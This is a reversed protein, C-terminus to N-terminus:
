VVKLDNEPKRDAIGSRTGAFSACFALTDSKAPRPRPPVPVFAGPENVDDAVIRAALERSAAAIGARCFVDGRFQLATALLRVFDRCLDPDPPKPASWFTGLPQGDTLGEVDYLAVGLTKVPRGARVAQFGVTSNVTVVGDCAEILAELSGGDIFRVRGVLGRSAAKRAVIRRWNKLGNDLPHLKFVLDADRPASAAFDDLVLGMAAELSTFPSHVRIQFDTELQLPFLFFRKKGSTLVRETEAAAAARRRTRRLRWLWGAYEALPHYIAHWRYHPYLFWLFVNPLNYLLDYGAEGAFSHQYLQRFDPDPLGSAAARIVAPDDPFHSNCGSGGHEVTLWDPRFYGMEVAYVSLGRTKAAAVVPRHWLREEGLLIVDTVGNRDIFRAVFDQWREPRGRYNTSGPRRWYIWDGVNLNIRLCRHGAAELRDATRAFLPSAHGQLFLFTRTSVAAASRLVSSPDLGAEAGLGSMSDPSSPDTTMRSPAGPCSRAAASRASRHGALGLGSGIDPGLAAKRARSPHDAVLAAAQGLPVVVYDTRHDPFPDAFSKLMPVHDGYFLLWVPRDLQDLEGALHGLARDSRELIGLYIDLADKAEGFRGPLWPGHNEMSAAFIFQGKENDRDDCVSLVRDALKHDTVYRGDISHDHDFADLMTMTQFGLHPMARHRAFFKRDYPHLFHTSWGHRRFWNPWAVEAYDKARLYPYPADAGIQDPSLGSLVSFETRLTYGGEFVSQLRGWEIARDRLKDLHPLDLSSVGFHRMDVFSESQWVVCLPPGSEEGSKQDEHAVFGETNEVPRAPTTLRQRGLWMQFHYAVASFTGLRMVITRIDDTGFLWQAVLSLRQRHVLNFLLLGPTLTLAIFACIDEFQATAPLISPEFVMFATTAGFIYGLALIWFIVNLRTAYFIEKHKFVDVVLAIDSFLLPERIFQFKARSIGSFIVFFSITGAAGYFPRWSFSFFVAYILLVIPLRMAEDVARERWTRDRRHRARAAVPLSYPDTAIVVLWSFLFCLVARSLPDALAALGM